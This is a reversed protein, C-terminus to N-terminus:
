TGVSAHPDSTYSGMGQLALDSDQISALFSTILLGLLQLHLLKFKGAQNHTVHHAPEGMQTKSSSAHPEKQSDSKIKGQKKLQSKVADETRNRNIRENFARTIQPVSVKGDEPVLSLLIRIEEDRWPLRKHSMKTTSQCSDHREDRELLGYLSATCTVTLTTITFNEIQM